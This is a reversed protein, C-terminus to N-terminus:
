NECNEDEVEVSIRGVGSRRLYGYLENAMHRALGDTITMHIVAEYESWNVLPPLPLAKFPPIKAGARFTAYTMRRKRCLREFPYLDLSIYFRREENPVAEALSDLHIPTRLQEPSPGYDVHKEYHALVEAHWEADTKRRFDGPNEASDSGEVSNLREPAPTKGTESSGDAPADNQIPSDWDFHDANLHQRM